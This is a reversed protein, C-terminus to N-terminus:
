WQLNRLKAFTNVVIYSLDISMATNRLPADKSFPDRARRPIAQSNYLVGHASVQNTSSQIQVSSTRMDIFATTMGQDTTSLRSMERDADPSPNATTARSIPTPARSSPRDAAVISGRSECEAKPSPASASNSPLPDLVSFQGCLDGAEM